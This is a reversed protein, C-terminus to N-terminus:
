ARIVLPAIKLLEPVLLDISGNVEGVPALGRCFSYWGLIKRSAPRAPQPYGRAAVVHEVEHHVIASPEPEVALEQEILPAALRDARVRQVEVQL